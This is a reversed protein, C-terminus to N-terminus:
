GGVWVSVQLPVDRRDKITKYKQDKNVLEDAVRFWISLQPDAPSNWYWSNNGDPCVIIMNYLDALKGFGKSQYGLRCLIGKVM